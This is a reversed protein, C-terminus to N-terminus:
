PLPFAEQGPEGGWEPKLGLTRPLERLGPPSFGAAKRRSRNSRLDRTPRRSSLRVGCSLQVVGPTRRLLTPASLRGWLPTECNLTWNKNTQKNRAPM